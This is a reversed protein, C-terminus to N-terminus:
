AGGGLPIDPVFHGPQDLWLLVGGSERELHTLSIHLIKLGHLLAQVSDVGVGPPPTHDWGEIQLPCRWDTEGATPVDQM